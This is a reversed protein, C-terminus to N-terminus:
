RILRLIKSQVTYVRPRIVRTRRMGLRKLLLYDRSVVINVGYASMNSCTNFSEFLHENVHEYFFRILACSHM